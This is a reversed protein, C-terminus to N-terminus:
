ATSDVRYVEVEAARFKNAGTLITEGDSPIMPRSEDIRPIEYVGMRGVWTQSDDDRGLTAGLHLEKSGFRPGSSAFGYMAWDNVDGKLGMKTPGLGQSCTLAFLFANGPSRIYSNTDWSVDAYGGFVYGNDREKIVTLTAGQRDCRAHFEEADWGDRSARFLLECHPVKGEAQAEALWGELHPVLEGVGSDPGVILSDLLLNLKIHTGIKSLVDVDLQDLKALCLRM